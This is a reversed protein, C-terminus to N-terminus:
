VVFPFFFYAARYPIHVDTITTGARYVITSITFLSVAPV